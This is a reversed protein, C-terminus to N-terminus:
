SGAKAAGIQVMNLNAGSLRYLTFKKKKNQAPYTISTILSYLSAASQETRM